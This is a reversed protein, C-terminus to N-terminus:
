HKTENKTLDQVKQEAEDRMKILEDRKEELEKNEQKANEANKQLQDLLNPMDLEANLSPKFLTYHPLLITLEAEGM